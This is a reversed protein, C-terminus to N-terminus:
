ERFKLKFTGDLTMSEQKANAYKGNITVFADRMSISDVVFDGSLAYFARQDNTLQYQEILVAYSLGQLNYRGPQIPEPMQIYVDARWSEDFSFEWATGSSDPRNHRTSVTLVAVNHDGAKYKTQEQPDSLDADRILQTHEIKVRKRPGEGTLYLDQRFRSACGAIQMTQVLLVAITLWTFSKTFKM